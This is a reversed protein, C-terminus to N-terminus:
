CYVIKGSFLLSLFIIGAAAVACRCCPSGCANRLFTDAGAHLTPQAGAVTTVAPVTTTESATTHSPTPVPVTTVKTTVNATMTAQPADGGIWKAYLTMDGPIGDAFNWAHTCDEDTYWGGFTYGEKTPAPPETMCDGASLGTAPSIFSGGSTAFLVGTPTTWIAPPTVQRSPLYPRSLAPGSPQLLRM